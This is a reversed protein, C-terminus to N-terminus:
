SYHPPGEAFLAVAQHEGSLGSYWREAAPSDVIADNRSVVMFLPTRLTGARDRNRRLLAFMERYVVRPIFRDVKLHNLNELDELDASFFLKVRNTFLLTNDFLHYWFHAPVLPSRRRCVAMLPALLVVADVLTPNDALCDLAVAAGLSHALLVVRGHGNRLAEVESCVAQRWQAADTRRYHDIPMAFYPLRMARCTFGKDALAPALLGFIAPSDSFGTPDHPHGLDGKGVTFERCGLHVGDPDREIGAEWQAYCRRMWLYYALDGVVWAVLVM